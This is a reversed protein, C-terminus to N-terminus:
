SRSSPSRAPSNADRRGRRGAPSRRGTARPARGTDRADLRRASVCSSTRRRIPLSISSTTPSLARRSPAAAGVDASSTRAAPAGITPKEAASPRCRDRASPSGRSRVHVAVLADDADHLLGLHHHALQERAEQTPRLVHRRFPALSEPARRRRAPAAADRSKMAPIVSRKASRAFVRPQKRFSQSSQSNKRIARAGHGVRAGIFIKAVTRARTCRPARRARGRRARKGASSGERTTTSGGRSGVWPSMAVLAAITSALSAPLFGRSSASSTASFSRASSRIALTSTAPGPKM